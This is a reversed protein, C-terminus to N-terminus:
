LGFRERPGGPGHALLREVLGELYKEELVEFHHGEVVSYMFKGSTYTKWAKMHTSVPNGGAELALLDGKIKGSLKHKKLIVRNHRVLSKIREGNVFDMTKLYNDIEQDTFHQDIQEFVAHDPPQDLCIFSVSHGSKELRKALEFGVTGGMSYGLISFVGEQQIQLVEEEFTKAMVRISTDFKRDDDFGKYQLGYCNFSTLMKALPKFLVPTGIIPSVLFLNQSASANNNLKIALRKEGSESPSVAKLYKKDLLGTLDHITHCELLDSVALEMNYDERLAKILQIGTLSHFGYHMLDEEPDLMDPAVNLLESITNKLEKELADRSAPMDRKGHKEGSTEVRNKRSVVREMDMEVWYPVMRFPYTPLSVRGPKKGEYLAMWSVNTGQVWLLALEDLREWQFQQPITDGSAKINGSFIGQEELTEADDAKIFLELKERLAEKSDVVFAVRVAMAERGTQLTFAISDLSYRGQGEASAGGSDDEFLFDRLNEAMIKLREGDRASLPVIFATDTIGFESNQISFEEFLIHANSGAAGYSHLGAYRPTTERKWTLTEVALECPTDELKMYPNPAEFDLIKYIKGTKFSHVIKFLAGLASTCEMHGTMPKLTSVKCFGPAYNLDNEKCLAELARNFAEWEVIDGAQNGMGQAEIYTVAGPAVGSERYCQAILATHAKRNPAAISMGGKGNYNVATNRIVAYIHDGDRKAASLPKLLVSAVGEARVYGNADKGFSRVSDTTSMMNMHSLAIQGEPRLIIRAAGVLAADIEGRQMCGVARHIAVAASSCMTNVMESPGSLDLFYSIRNAIMNPHHDFANASLDLQMDYLNRLYENEEVGVFVGTRSGKFAGAAYGADEITKWVSMLLLRQQPDILRADKPSINFFLPDFGRVDPIFGGWKSRMKGAQLGHEDYFDQWKFRDEPIEGILSREEDLAAWFDYVDSCGPFYGHLGVIAVPETSFRKKEKEAEQFIVSKEQMGSRILEELERRKIYLELAQRKEETNKESRMNKKDTKIM